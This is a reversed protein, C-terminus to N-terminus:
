SLLKTLLPSVWLYDVTGTLILVVSFLLVERKFIYRNSGSGHRVSFLFLLATCANDSFLLLLRVLWAADGFAQGIAACCFSYSVAKLFLIPLVLVPVSLYLCSVIALFPLALVTMLGVISVRINCAARMLASVSDLQCHFLLIGFVLGLIWSLVFAVKCTYKRDLNFSIFKLSFMYM